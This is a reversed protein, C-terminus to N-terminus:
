SPGGGGSKKEQAGMETNLEVIMKKVQQAQIGGPVLKLFKEWAEKAAALDHKDNKLIIGLNLYAVAHNPDKRNVLRLEEIAKDPQGSIRYMTAMDVRVDSLQPKLELAKRYHEISKDPQKTDYYINGLQVYAGVNKPDLELTKKYSEIAQTYRQARYYADGLELWANVNDPDDKLISKYEKIVHELQEPSPTQVDFQGPEEVPPPSALQHSKSGFLMPVILGLVFGLVFGAVGMVISEKKM